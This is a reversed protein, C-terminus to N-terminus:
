PYKKYLKFRFALTELLNEIETEALGWIPDSNFAKQYVSLKRPDIKFAAKRLIQWIYWGEWYRPNKQMWQKTLKFFAFSVEDPWSSEYGLLLDVLPTEADIIKFGKAMGYLALTTFSERTLASFIEDIWAKNWAPNDSHDLYNKFIALLWDQEKTSISKYIIAELLVQAWENKLFLPVIEDPTKNLHNSLYELPLLFVFQALYNARLGGSFEPHQAILNWDFAEDTTPLKVILKTKNKSEKITFFVKEEFAKLVKLVLESNLNQARINFLALKVKKSKGVNLREVFDFEADTTNKAIINLFDVKTNAKLQPWDKELLGIANEPNHLRLKEYYRLRDVPFKSKWNKEEPISKLRQWSTNKSILWHAVAGIHDEVSKWLDPQELCENLFDPLQEPPFTWQRIALMRLYEQFMAEYDGHLIHPLMEAVEMPPPTQQAAIPSKEPIHDSAPFKRASRYILSLQTLGDLFVKDESQDLDTGLGALLKQLPLSINSRDTGLLAIKKIAEWPIQKPLNM